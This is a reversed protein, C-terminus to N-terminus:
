LEWVQPIPSLSLLFVNKKKTQKNKEKGNIFFGPCKPGQLVFLLGIM